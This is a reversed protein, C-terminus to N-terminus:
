KKKVEATPLLTKIKLTLFFTERRRYVWGGGGGGEGGWSRIKDHHKIRYTNSLGAM